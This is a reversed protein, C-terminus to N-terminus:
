GVALRAAGLNRVRSTTFGMLIAFGVVLSGGLAVAMQTSTYAAIFGAQSAGLPIMSYTISYIGMVRGRYENPVLMQISNMVGILYVSNCAGILFILVLSLPFWPSVAFLAVLAGFSVAGGIIIWGRHQSNGLNTSALIGLVSGVGSMGILAGMGGSGVELIDEAFVPMFMVYSMGFFSNFFTFGLLFLFISHERIFVFGLLMEKFVNGRAREAPALTVTQILMAMSFFAAAGLFIIPTVDGAGFGLTAVVIGAVPPGIVRSGTWVLSNLSVVQSLDRREVLRPYISNRAPSDFAQAAGFLAAALIVHWPEVWYNWTLIGLVVMQCASFGEALTVIRKPDLKDAFVGGLLNFCITPVAIAIGVYGLYRPDPNLAHMLWLLSIDVIMRYGFVSAVMGIYYRRYGPYKKLTIFGLRGSLTSSTRQM